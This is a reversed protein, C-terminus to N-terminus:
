QDNLTQMATMGHRNMLTFDEKVKGAGGIGLGGGKEAEGVSSMETETDEEIKM